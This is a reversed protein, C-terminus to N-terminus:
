ENAVPLQLLMATAASFIIIGVVLIGIRLRRSSFSSITAGVFLVAAYIVTLLVYSDSNKNAQQAEELKSEALKSMEEAKKAFTKNYELMAFPHPPATGNELPNTALWAEVAVKFDPSFRELYFNSLNQNHSILANVYQTFTVINMTMVQGQQLNLMTVQQGARSSETLRFTQIGSWLTSQYASWAITIVVLSVLVASIIQIKQDNSEKKDSM